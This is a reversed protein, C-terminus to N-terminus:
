SYSMILKVVQQNQTHKNTQKNKLFYLINKDVLCPVACLVADMIGAIINLSCKTMGCGRLYFKALKHVKIALLRLTLFAIM